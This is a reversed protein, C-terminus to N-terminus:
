IKWRGVRPGAFAFGEREETIETEARESLWDAGNPNLFGRLGNINGKKERFWDIKLVEM